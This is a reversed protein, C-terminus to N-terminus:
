VTRVDARVSRWDAIANKSDALLRTRPGGIVTEFLVFEGVFGRGGDHEVPARLHVVQLRLYIPLRQEGQWWSQAAHEYNKGLYHTQPKARFIGLRPLDPSELDRLLDM